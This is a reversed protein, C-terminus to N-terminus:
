KVRRSAMSQLTRHLRLRGVYDRGGSLTEPVAVPRLALVGLGLHGAGDFLQQDVIAYRPADTGSDNDRQRVCRNHWDVAVAGSSM